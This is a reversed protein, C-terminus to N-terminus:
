VATTHYDKTHKFFYLGLMFWDGKVNNVGIAVVPLLNQIYVLYYDDNSNEVKTKMEQVCTNARSPFTGFKIM